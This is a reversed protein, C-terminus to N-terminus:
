PGALTRTVADVADVMAGAHASLVWPLSVAFMGVGVAGTATTGVSFFAHMKPALKALIAVFLHVLFVMAVVPGALQVGLVLCEGVARVAVDAGGGPIGAAGAPVVAFSRAVIELCRADLGLGLFVLGALWSALSGLVSENSRTLPDVLTAFSLAMQASGLEAGLALAAFTAAVGLGLLLGLGIEGVMALAVAPLSSGLETPPVSATVLGSVAMAILANAWRPVGMLTFVPLISLLAGVRGLVLVFTLAVPIV